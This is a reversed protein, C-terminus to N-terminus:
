SEITRSQHGCGALGATLARVRPRRGRGRHGTVHDEADTREGELACGRRLLLLQLLEARKPRLVTSSHARGEADRRRAWPLRSHRDDPADTLFCCARQDRRSGFLQRARLYGLLRDRM